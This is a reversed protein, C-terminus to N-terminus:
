SNDTEGIEDLTSRRITFGRIQPIRTDSGLQADEEKRVGELIKKLTAQQYRELHVDLERAIWEHLSEEPEHKLEM